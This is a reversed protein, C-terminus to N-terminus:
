EDESLYITRLSSHQLLLVVFFLFQLHDATARKM